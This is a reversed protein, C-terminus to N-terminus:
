YSIPPLPQPNLPKASGRGGSVDDLQKDDVDKPGDNPGKKEEIM